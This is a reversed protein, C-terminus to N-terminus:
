QSFRWIAKQTKLKYRLIKKKAPEKKKPEYHFKLNDPEAVFFGLCQNKTTETTDEFSKIQDFRYGCIINEM